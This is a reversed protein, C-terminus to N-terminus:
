GEIWMVLASYMIQSVGARTMTQSPNLKTGTEELLDLEKAAAVYPAFWDSVAVDEYPAVAVTQAVNIRQSNLIMKIAEVKNVTQSPKYTGDPYGDIWGVTKGYCVYKAYWDDKVDNFCSLEIYGLFLCNNKGTIYIIKQTGIQISSQHLFDTKLIRGYVITTVSLNGNRYTIPFM